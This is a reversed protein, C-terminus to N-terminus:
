NESVKGGTAARHIADVIAATNSVAGAKRLKALDRCLQRYQDVTPTIEITPHSSSQTAAM